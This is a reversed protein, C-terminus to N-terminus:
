ENMKRQQTVICAFMAADFKEVRDEEEEKELDLGKVLVGQKGRLLVRWLGVENGM